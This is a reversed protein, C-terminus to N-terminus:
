LLEVMHNVGAHAFSCREGSVVVVVGTMLLLVCYWYLRSCIYFKAWLEQNNEMKVDVADKEM